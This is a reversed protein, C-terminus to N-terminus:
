RRVQFRFPVVVSFWIGRDNIKLPHFRWRLLAERAAIECLYDVDSELLLVEQVEGQPDVRAKLRLRGEIGAELSAQPYEPVIMERIAFDSTRSRPLTTPQPAFDENLQIVVEPQTPLPVLEGIRVRPRARVPPAPRPADDYVFDVWEMAGRRRRSEAVARIAAEPLDGPALIAEPRRAQRYGAQDPRLSQPICSGPLLAGLLLHTAVSFLMARWFRRRYAEELESYPRGAHLM